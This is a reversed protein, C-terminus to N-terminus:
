MMEVVHQQVFTAELISESCKELGDLIVVGIEIEVRHVLPLRSLAISLIDLLIVLVM